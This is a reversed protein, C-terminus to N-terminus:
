NKFLQNLQKKNSCQFKIKQNEARNPSNIDRITSINVRVDSLNPDSEFM